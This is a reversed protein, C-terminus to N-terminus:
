SGDVVVTTRNGDNDVTSIVRDTVGDLGVFTETGTGAGSVKGALVAAIIRLVEEATMGDEIIASWPNGGAGANTLALGASGANPYNALIANWVADRVGEATFASYSVISAEMSLTGRLNSASMSAPNTMNASCWAILGLSADIQGVQALNAALNLTMQMPGTLTNANTMNTAMSTIMSLAAATISGDQTMTAEMNIGKQLNATITNDQNVTTQASMAGGKNPMIWCVPHETGDPTGAKQTFASFQNMRDGRAFMARNNGPYGLGGAAGSVYTLPLPGIVLYGNGLLAVILRGV